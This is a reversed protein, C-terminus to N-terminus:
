KKMSAADLLLLETMVEATCDTGGKFYLTVSEDIIYNLKKREAVIDVAKQVRELIPKNLESSYIQMEQQLSQQREQLAQEKKMIKEQEIKQIVPSLNASTADYKAYSAELDKQMEQLEKYGNEEFKKLEVIAAKRSALTDLLKQSNVHGVKSQASAFGATAVVMLALILKKM